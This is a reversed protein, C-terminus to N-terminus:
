VAVQAARDQRRRIPALTQVLQEVGAVQGVRLQARDVAEQELEILVFGFRL